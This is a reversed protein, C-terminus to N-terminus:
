FLSVNNVKQPVKKQLLFPKTEMNCLIDSQEQHTIEM